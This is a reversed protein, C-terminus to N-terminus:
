QAPDLTGDAPSYVLEVTQDSDVKVGARTVAKAGDHLVVRYTGPELAPAAPNLTSGAGAKEGASNFIEYPLDEPPALRPAAVPPPPPPPPRPGAATAATLAKALQLGDAASYYRGGTAGAFAQMDAAIRNGTLTFGIIDLRVPVGLAALKPGAERPRGGCSEEGDTVLVITGGGLKKLDEGAQLASLVLPTEGHAKAGDIVRTLAARDIPGIPVVLETDTNSKSSFSSYRHGYLRLGVRLGDPLRAILSHLVEKATAIRTSRGLDTDMSGSCDLILELNPPLEAAPAPAAVPPPKPAPAPPLPRPRATVVIHAPEIKTTFSGTLAIVPWMTSAFATTEPKEQWSGDAKQQLILFRVGRQFAPSAPSFGATRLAYLVEGTAFASTPLNEDPELLWGGDPRQELLLETCIQRARKQLGADGHRIFALVQFVRDQTTHVEAAAIFKLGRDIAAKLGPNDGRLLAEAWVDLAHSTHLIAGQTVPLREGNAPAAGDETQHAALWQAAKVLRETAGPEDHALSLGLAAFVTNSTDETESHDPTRAFDGAENQSAQLYRSLLRQTARSIVYDSRAAVSIGWLAQSQVHCGLCAKERQFDVASASLFFLGQQAAHRPQMRWQVLEPSRQRLPQYGDARGEIVRLSKLTLAAEGQRSLLRVKVFRAPTPAVPIVLEAQPNEAPQTFGGVKSFGDTASQMSTWVEVERPAHDVDSAGLEVRAVLAPQRQYFSVVMECPVEPTPDDAAADPRSVPIWEMTSGTLLTSPAWSLGAGDEGSVSEVLGGLEPDSLVFEDGTEAPSRVVLTGAGAVRTGTDADIAEARYRGPLLARPLLLPITQAAHDASLREGDNDLPPPVVVLGRAVGPVDEAVLRATFVFTDDGQFQGRATVFLQPVWHDLGTVPATPTVEEGRPDITRLEVTLAPLKPNPDAAPETAAEAPPADDAAAVVALLLFGAIWRLMKM